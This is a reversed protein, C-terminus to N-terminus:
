PTVELAGTKRWAQSAVRGTFIRILFLSLSFLAQSITSGIPISGVVGDKGIKGSECMVCYGIESHVLIQAM